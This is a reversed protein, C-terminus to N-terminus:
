RDEARPRAGEGPVHKRVRSYLATLDGLGIMTIDGVQGPTYRWRWNGAPKGPFNMRASTPLRLLDQFPIIAIDAVSGWALRMLDGCIDRDGAGPLYRRLFLKEEKPLEAFWGITTDNDHTGTYVVTNHEYHHPLFRNDSGSFAFHLVSMGPLAFANRLEQVDPTILGLDEAILPLGGLTKRMAELLDAGPAPAWRGNIATEEGAPVEWAAAFGRFHDLRVLDVQELASMFRAAWWAYNNKKMEAWDYHPNGWLQGTPSFYDPPVGAVVTPRNRADLRFLQPNAWVDASDGAVFIPLDGIMKIGRGNAVRRLDAWQRAFLFQGFRHREVSDRLTRRAKALAAPERHVLTEEWDYWSGGGHSEKLAAFLAFDDLWASERQCFGEYAPKLHRARGAEFGDWAKRLLTNKYDNVAGYEVHSDPFRPVSPVDHGLLGERAVLVPSILNINGAFTAYSQYPSDGFGTPGLPLMQWWTQGAEALSAVWEHAVPGLDGIGYPGPLSSPHLLVGASRAPRTAIHDTEM